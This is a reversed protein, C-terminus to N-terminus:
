SRIRQKLHEAADLLIPPALREITRRTGQVREGPLAQYLTFRADGRGSQRRGNPYYYLASRRTRDPPRTLPDPHAHYSYDTTAFVVLHRTFDGFFADGETALNKSTVQKFGKM